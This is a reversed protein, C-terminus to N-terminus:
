QCTMGAFAPVWDETQDKEPGRSACPHRASSRTLDFPANLIVKMYIVTMSMDNGRLRSDLNKMKEVLILVRERRASIGVAQEASFATPKVFRVREGRTRSLVKSKKGSLRFFLSESLGARDETSV